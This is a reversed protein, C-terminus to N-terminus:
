TALDTPLSDTGLEVEFHGHLCHLANDCGRGEPPSFVEKIKLHMHEIIVNIHIAGRM